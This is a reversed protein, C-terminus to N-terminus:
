GSRRISGEGGSGSVVTDRANIQKEKNVIEHMGAGDGILAGGVDFEYGHDDLAGALAEDRMKQLIDKARKKQEVKFEADPDEEVVERDEDVEITGNELEEKSVQKLEFNSIILSAVTDVDIDKVNTSLIKKLSAYINLKETTMIHKGCAPCNNSRIAFEFKYDVMVKCNQCEM